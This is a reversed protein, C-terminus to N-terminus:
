STKFQHVSEDLENAVLSLGAISSAVQKAQDATEQANSGVSQMLLAIQDTTANQEEAAAAISVNAASLDSISKVFHTFKAGTELSTKSVSESAARSQEIVQVAARSQKTMQDIKSRIEETSKASNGALTRVEDAVVAFGRGQEGARAAEIAANLALLNTQEAISQITELIGEISSVGVDLSSIVEVAEQMQIDLKEVSAVTTNIMQEISSAEKEGEQMNQSTQEAISAVEGISLSMESIAVAAQEIELRQNEIKVQTKESVDRTQSVIENVKLSEAEIDLVMSRLAVVLRNIRRAIASFEDNNKLTLSATLNGESVESIYRNLAKIPKRISFVVLAAIIVSLFLALVGVLVLRIYTESVKAASKAAVKNAETTIKSSIVSLEAVVEKLESAVEDVNRNLTSKLQLYSNLTPAIGGTEQVLGIVKQVSTTVVKLNDAFFKDSRAFGLLRMALRGYDDAFQSFQRQSQSFDELNNAYSIQLALSTGRDIIGKAEYVLKQASPDFTEEILMPLSIELEERVDALAARKNVIDDLSKLSLRYDGIDGNARESLASIRGSLSDVQKLNKEQLPMSRLAQTLVQSQEDFLKIDAQISQSAFNLEALSKANFGESLHLTLNLAAQQLQSAAREAPNASNVIVDLNSKINTLGSVSMLTSLLIGGALVAFGTILRGVVTLNNIM